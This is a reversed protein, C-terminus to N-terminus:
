ICTYTCDYLIGFACRTYVFVKADVVITEIYTNMYVLYFIKAPIYLILNKIM